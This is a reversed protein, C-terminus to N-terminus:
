CCATRDRKAPRRVAPHSRQCVRGRHTLVVLPAILRLRLERRDRGAINRTAAHLIPRLPLRHQRDEARRTRDAAPRHVPAPLDAARHARDNGRDRRAARAPHRRHDRDAARQRGDRRRHARACPMPSCAHWTSSPQCRGQAVTLVRKMVGKRGELFSKSSRRCTSAAYARRGHQDCPPCSGPPRPRARSRRSGRAPGERGPNRPTEASRRPDAAGFMRELSSTSRTTSSM